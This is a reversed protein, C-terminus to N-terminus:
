KVVTNLSFTRVLCLLLVLTFSFALTFLLPLVQQFTNLLFEGTLGAFACRDEVGRSFSLYVRIFFLGLSSASYNSCSGPPNIPSTDLALPTFILSHIFPVYDFMLFFGSSWLLLFAIWNLTINMIAIVTSQIFFFHDIIITIFM